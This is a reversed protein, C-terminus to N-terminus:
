HWIATIKRTSLLWEAVWSTPVPILYSAPLWSGFDPTLTHKYERSSFTSTFVQTSNGKYKWEQLFLLANSPWVLFLLGPRLNMTPSAHTSSPHPTIFCSRPKQQPRRAPGHILCQHKCLRTFTSFAASDPCKLITVKITQSNFRLFNFFFNSIGFNFTLSM